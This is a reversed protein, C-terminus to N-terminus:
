RVIRLNIPARPPTGGTFPADSTVWAPGPSPSGGVRLQGPSPGGAANSTDGALTGSGEDFHYLAVTAADPAFASVPRTFNAAYRLNSSIRVEDIIGRYQLGNFGHKEGGIVLYPDNPWSSSRADRYSADGNPGDAEAEMVGDVFIWIHGDSRRRQVAIHHWAGDCVNTSGVITRADDVSTEVGFAIIGGGLAVGFDGSDAGGNIDRDIVINGNIWNFNQGGAIPPNSNDGPNAKMWFEITFDALGVDAPVAPADIRIYVKDVDDVDSGFFQLASGAATRAALGDSHLAGIALAYLFVAPAIVLGGTWTTARPLRDTM